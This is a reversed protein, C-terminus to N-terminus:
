LVTIKEFLRRQLLYKRILEIDSDNFGKIKSNVIQFPIRLTPNCDKAIPYIDKLFDRFARQRIRNDQKEGKYLEPFLPDTSKLKQFGSTGPKKIVNNFSKYDNIEFAIPFQNYHNLTLNRFQNFHQSEDFEVGFSFPENIWIDFYQSGVSKVKKIQEDLQFKGDIVSSYVDQLLNWYESLEEKVPCATLWIPSYELSYIAEIHFKDALLKCILKAIPELKHNCKNNQNNNNESIKPPDPPNQIKRIKSPPIKWFVGDQYAHPLKNARLLDRLPKGPRTSSDRLLGKRDLLEAAEVATIFSNGTKELYEDITKTILVIRQTNM